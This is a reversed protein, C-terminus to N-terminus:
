SEHCAELADFAEAIDHTRGAELDAIGRPVSALTETEENESIGLMVDYVDARMVIYKGQQGDVSLPGGHLLLRQETEPTIAQRNADM